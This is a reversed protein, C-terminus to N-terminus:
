SRHGRQTVTPSTAAPTTRTRTRTTTEHVHACTRVWVADNLCQRQLLNRHLNLNYTAGAYNFSLLARVGACTNGMWLWGQQGCTQYTQTDFTGRNAGVQVDARAPDYWRAVCRAVCVCVCVGCWVVCWVGCVVCM